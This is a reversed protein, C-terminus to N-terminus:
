TLDEPGYHVTEKYSDDDSEVKIVHTIRTIETETGPREAPINEVTETPGDTLQTAVYQQHQKVRMDWIMLCICRTILIRKLEEFDRDIRGVPQM